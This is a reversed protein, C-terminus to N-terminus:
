GGRAKKWAANVIKLYAKWAPAELADYADWAAGEIAQYVAWAAQVSGPTHVAIAENKRKAARRKRNNSQAQAQTWGSM